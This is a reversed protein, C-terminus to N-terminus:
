VVAMVRWDYLGLVLDGILMAVVPVALALSRRGLMAGAFLAAAAVPSFNSVHPLLRMAVCLGILALALLLDARLTPANAADADPRDTTMRAEKRLALSDCRGNE